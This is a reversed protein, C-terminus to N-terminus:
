GFSQETSLNESLDPKLFGTNKDFLAFGGLMRKNNQECDPDLTLIIVEFGRKV